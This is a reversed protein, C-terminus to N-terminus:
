LCSWCVQKTSMKLWQWHYVNPQGTQQLTAYRIPSNLMSLLGPGRPCHIIVAFKRWVTQSHKWTCESLLAKSILPINRNTLSNESIWVLKQYCIPVRWVAHLPLSDLTGFPLPRTLDWMAIKIHCCRVCAWISVGPRFQKGQCDNRWEVTSRM